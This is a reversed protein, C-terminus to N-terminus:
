TKESIILELKEKENKVLTYEENYKTIDSALVGVEINRTKEKNKKYILAKEIRIKLPEYKLSLENILM